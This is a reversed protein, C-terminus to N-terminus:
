KPDCGARHAHYSRGDLATMKGRVIELYMTEANKAAQTGKAAVFDYAEGKENVGKVHPEIMVLSGSKVQRRRVTATGRGHDISISKKLFSPLIYLSLMGAAALPLIFKLGGVLVSHRRARRFEEERRADRVPAKSGRM